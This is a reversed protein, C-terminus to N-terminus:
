RGARPAAGLQYASTDQDILRGDAARRARIRDGVDLSEVEDAVSNAEVGSGLAAAVGGAVEREVDGAAAAFGALAVAGDGDLHLEQGVDLQDALLAFARAELAADEVDAVVPEVDVLHQLQGHALRQCEEAAM